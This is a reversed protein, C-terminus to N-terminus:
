ANARRRRGPFARRAGLARGVEQSHMAVVAGQRPETEARTRSGNRRGAGKPRPASKTRRAPRGSERRVSFRGYRDRGRRFRGCTCSTNRLCTRFDADGDDIAAGVLALRGAIHQLLDTQDQVLNFLLVLDHTRPHAIGRAVLLAKLYKEACQQCHFCVTDTPCNEKLTLVYEANRLDHEAKEVWRRIEINPDPQGSM